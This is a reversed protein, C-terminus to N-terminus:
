DNKDTGAVALQFVYCFLCDRTVIAVLFVEM